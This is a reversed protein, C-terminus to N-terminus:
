DDPDGLEIGLKGARIKMLGGYAWHLLFFNFFMIVVLVGIVVTWLMFSDRAVETVAQLGGSAYSILTFVFQIGMYILLGGWVLRRKEFASPLRAERKLFQEAAFIAATFPVIFKVGNAGGKGFFLDMFVILISM